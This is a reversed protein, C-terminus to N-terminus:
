SNLGIEQVLPHFGNQPLLIFGQVQCKYMVREKLSARKPVRGVSRIYDEDHSACTPMNVSHPKHVLKRKRSWFPLVYVKIKILGNGYRM